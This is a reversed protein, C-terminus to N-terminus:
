YRDSASGGMSMRVHRVGDQDSRYTTRDRRDRRSPDARGIRHDDIRQTLQAERIDVPPSPGSGPGAELREWGPGLWRSERPCPRGRGNRVNQFWTSVGEGSVVCVDPVGLRDVQQERHVRALSRTRRTAGGIGPRSAGGFGTVTGFVLPRRARAPRNRNAGFVVPEVPETGM